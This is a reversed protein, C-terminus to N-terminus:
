QRTAGPFDAYTSHPEDDRQRYGDRIASVMSAAIGSISLILLFTGLIIM